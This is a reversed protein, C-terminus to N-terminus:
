ANTRRDFDDQTVPTITTMTAVRKGPRDIEDMVREWDDPHIELSYQQGSLGIKKEELNVCTVYTLNILHDQYVTGSKVRAYIM